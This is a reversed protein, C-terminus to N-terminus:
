VLCSFIHRAFRGDTQLSSVFLTSCPDIEPLTGPPLPRLASPAAQLPQGAEIMAGSQSAPMATYHMSAIALGQVIGGAVTTVVSNAWFKSAKMIAPAMSTTHV